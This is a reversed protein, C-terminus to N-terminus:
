ICEQRCIFRVHQLRDLGDIQCLDRFRYLDESPRAIGVTLDEDAPIPYRM